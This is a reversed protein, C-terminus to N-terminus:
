FRMREEGKGVEMYLLSLFKYFFLVPAAAKLSAKGWSWAAPRPGLPNLLKLFLSCTKKWCLSSGAAGPAKHDHHTVGARVMHTSENQFSFFVFRFIKLANEPTGQTKWFSSWRIWLWTQQAEQCSLAGMAVQITCLLAQDTLIISM